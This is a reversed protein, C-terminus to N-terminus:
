AAKTYDEEFEEQIPPRNSSQSLDSIDVPSFEKELMLAEYLHDHSKFEGWGNRKMWPYFSILSIGCTLMVSLSFIAWRFSSQFNREEMKIRNKSISMGWSQGHNFFYCFFHYAFFVVPLIAFTLESFHIQSFARQVSGAIMYTNFSMELIGTVMMASSFILMTDLIYSMIIKKRGIVSELIPRHLLAQGPIKKKSNTYDALDIENM